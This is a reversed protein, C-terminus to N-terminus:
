ILIDQYRPDRTDTCSFFVEKAQVQWTACGWEWRFLSASGCYHYNHAGRERSQGQEQRREVGL